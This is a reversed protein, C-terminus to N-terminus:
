MDAENVGQKLKREGERDRQRERRKRGRERRKEVGKEEERGGKRGGKRGQKGEVKQGQGARASACRSVAGRGGKVTCFAKCDHGPDRDNTEESQSMLQRALDEVGEAEPASM